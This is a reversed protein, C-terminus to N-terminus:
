LDFITPAKVKRGTRTMYPMDSDVNSPEIEEIHEPEKTLITQENELGGLPPTEGDIELYHLRQVPRTFNGRATKVEVSRVIHDKGPFLRVIKGLPWSMRPLVDDRILVISGEVLKCNNRYIKEIPPIQTIYQKTWSDWFKNLIIGRIRERERLDEGTIPKDNEVM